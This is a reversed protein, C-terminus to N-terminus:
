GFHATPHLGHLPRCPHQEGVHEHALGALRQPVEAALLAHPLDTVQDRAATVHELDARDVIRREVNTANDSDRGSRSGAAANRTATCLLTRVPISCSSSTAAFSRSRPGGATSSAGSRACSRSRSDT